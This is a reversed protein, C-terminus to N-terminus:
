AGFFVKKLVTLTLISFQGWTQNFVDVKTAVSPQFIDTAHHGAQSTHGPRVGSGDGETVHHQFTSIISIFHLFKATTLLFKSSNHTHTHTEPRVPHKSQCYLLIIKNLGKSGEALCAM